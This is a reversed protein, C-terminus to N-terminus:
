NDFCETTTYKTQRLFKGSLESSFWTLQTWINRLHICPIVYGTLKSDHVERPDSLTTNWEVASTLLASFSPLTAAASCFYIALEEHCFFYKFLTKMNDCGEWGSKTKTKERQGTISM